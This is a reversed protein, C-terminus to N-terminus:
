EDIREVTATQKKLTVPVSVDESTVIQRIRIEEVVPIITTDGEVRTEPVAGIERDIRERIVEVRTGALTAQALKEVESSSTSVRVRGTVVREKDVTVSEEVLQIKRDNEDSM